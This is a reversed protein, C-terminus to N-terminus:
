DIGCILNTFNTALRKIQETNDTPGKETATKKSAELVLKKNPHPEAAGHFEHCTKGLM